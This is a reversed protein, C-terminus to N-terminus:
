EAASGLLATVAPPLGGLADSLARAFLDRPYFKDGSTSDGFTEVLAKLPGELFFWEGHSRYDHLICHLHAELSLPNHEVHTCAILSLTVPSGCQLAQLRLKPDYRSCGIKVVKADDRHLVAEPGILYVFGSM